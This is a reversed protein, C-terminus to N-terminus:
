DTKADAAKFARRLLFVATASVLYASGLDVILPIWWWHLLTQFPLAVCAGVGSLGGVLPVLSGSEGRAYWRLAIGLNGLAVLLFVGAFLWGM